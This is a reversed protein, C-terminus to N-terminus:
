KEHQKFLKNLFNLTITLTENFWPKALWFSHPSDKIEHMETYIHSNNLIKMMDDRGAHFRPQSSNIFLTPPTDKRVFELPSAEKWREFNDDKWGDLWYAAYQGEEAEKHIFSVIGDINVIAKIKSSKVGVLTAIQAGASAGLISIQKPNVHYEKKNKILYNIASYVDDIAAPYKAEDALRYNITMAVYGNSALQQAMYRQNEKSGSIWGGGHILIIAPNKKVSNKPSYIDAKLSVNKEEKYIINEKVVINEPLAITNIPEIFPYNKKLKQYTSEITYPSAKPREVQGFAIAMYLPFIFINIYKNFRM